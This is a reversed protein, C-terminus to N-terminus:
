GSRLYHIWPQLMTIHQRTSGSLFRDLIRNLSPKLDKHTIIPLQTQIEVEEPLHDDEELPRDDDRLEFRYQASFAGTPLTRTGFPGLRLMTAEKEVVLGLPGPWLAFALWRLGLALLWLAILTVLGLLFAWSIDTLRNSVGVDRFTLTGAQKAAVWLLFIGLPIFTVITLMGASRRATIVVPDSYPWQPVSNSPPHM